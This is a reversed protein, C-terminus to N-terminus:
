LEGQRISTETALRLFEKSVARLVAAKAEALTEFKTDPLIEDQISFLSTFKVTYNVEAGNDTISDSNRTIKAILTSNLLATSSRKKVGWRLEHQLNGDVWAVTVYNAIM